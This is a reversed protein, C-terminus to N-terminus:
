AVMFQVPQCDLVGVSPLFFPVLALFPFLWLSQFRFVFGLIWNNCLGSAIPSVWVWVCHRRSGSVSLYLTRDSNWSCDIGNQLLLVMCSFHQSLLIPTKRRREVELARLGSCKYVAVIKRSKREVLYRARSHEALAFALFSCSGWSRLPLFTSSQVM